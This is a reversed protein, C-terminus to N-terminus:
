HVDRASKRNAGQEQQWVLLVLEAFGPAWVVAIGYYPLM